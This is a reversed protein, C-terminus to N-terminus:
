YAGDYVNYVGCLLDKEDQSLSDDFWADKQSHELAGHRTYFIPKDSYTGSPGDLILEIAEELGIHDVVLRWLIGGSMLAARAVREDRLLTEVQRRYQLYDGADVKSAQADLRKGLLM